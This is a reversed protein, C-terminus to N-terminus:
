ENDNRSLQFMMVAALGATETRLRSKGLSVSEFGNDMAMKVEDASFDGEPGIMVTIDDDTATAKLDEFLNTKDFETYCHAIFKRGQRQENVFAKFPRMENLVPKWAKHSQKIASIAIKELRTTKLVKRESFKCNLFSIEDVGVEVAKEVLWEIRDLMKTPAIALHMHGSWQRPQPLTEVIKYKCFHTAALEVEARYYNGAGDMLMMEDGSKLRIVRLAHMAEEDPLEDTQTANPAYFFRTEKMTM